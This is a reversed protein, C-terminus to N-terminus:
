LYPEYGKQVSEKLSSKEENSIFSAEIANLNFNLFDKITFNFSDTLKQYEETLTINSVTRNDTSITVKAGLEYLKKINHKNYSPFVNTNINSTPCVELTINENIVRQLTSQDEWCRVGHGLRKTGYNLASTISDPGDAEGAHITFPVNLSKALEFLAQYDKTKYLGEAGALDIACVGKGLYEKALYVVKENQEFSEGRVCCLIVNTKIDVKKLGSLVAEVVEEKTLGQELHKLPAFRIEAYYVNENKLDTALEESIRKLNEKTQMLSVPLDFKTLYDNLDAVESNVKMENTVDRNLLVSATSVRVSGDLHLHLEIKPIKNINEM